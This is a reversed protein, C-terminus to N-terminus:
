EIIWLLQVGLLLYHKRSMVNFSWGSTEDLLNQLYSCWHTHPFDGWTGAKEHLAELLWHSTLFPIPYTINKKWYFCGSLNNWGFTLGLIMHILAVNFQSLLNHTHACLQVQTDIHTCSTLIHTFSYHNVFLGLIESYTSTNFSPPPASIIYLM